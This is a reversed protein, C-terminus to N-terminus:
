KGTELEIVKVEYNGEVLLYKSNKTFANSYIFKSSVWIIKNTKLDYVKSNSFNTQYLFRGDPSLRLLHYGEEVEISTILNGTKVNWVSFHNDSISKSVIRKGDDSMNIFFYDGADTNITAVQKRTNLDYVRITGVRGSIAIALYKSDPTIM